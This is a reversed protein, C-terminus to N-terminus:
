GLTEKEAAEVSNKSLITSQRGRRAMQEALSRRKAEEVAGSSPSPMETPRNDKEAKDLLTQPASPMKPAMMKGMVAGAAMSGAFMMIPMAMAGM